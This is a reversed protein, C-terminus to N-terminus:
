SRFFSPRNPLFVFCLIVQNEAEPRSVAEFKIGDANNKKPQARMAITRSRRKEQDREATVM